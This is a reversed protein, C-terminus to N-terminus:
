GYGGCNKGGVGGGNTGGGGGGHKAVHKTLAAVSTAQSFVTENMKQMVAKMKAFQLDLKSSSSQISSSRGSNETITSAVATNTVPITM